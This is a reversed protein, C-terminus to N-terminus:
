QRRETREGREAPAPPASPRAPCLPEFPLSTSVWRQWEDERIDRGLKGCLLQDLAVPAPLRWVAGNAEVLVVSRGDPAARLAVIARARPLQPGIADFSQTTLFRLAPGLSQSERGAALWGGDPSIALSGLGGDHAPGGSRQTAGTAADHLRLPPNAGATVFARGDPTFALANLTGGWGPDHVRVRRGEGRLGIDIRDSRLGIALHLGDNSFALSQVAGEGGLLFGADAPPAFSGVLAGTRVDWARVSGDFFGAALTSGDPSFRLPRPSFPLPPAAAPVELPLERDRGIQWLWPAGAGTSAAVYRGDDSLAVASATDLGRWPDTVPQRGAVDWVHVRGNGDTAAVRGTSADIAAAALTAPIRFLRAGVYKAAARLDAVPWLRLSADFGISALRSGDASFALDMVDRTHAAHLPGVPEGSDADWLQISGDEAGTAFSRSDSTFAIAGIKEGGHADSFVPLRKGGQSEWRTVNGAYDAAVLLRGDPSFSLAGIPLGHGRLARRVPVQFGDSGTKWLAVSGHDMELAARTGTPSFEIRQIGRPTSRIAPGLTRGSATDYAAVIGREWDLVAIYAGSPHIRVHHLKLDEPVPLTIRQAAGDPVSLTLAHPAGSELLAVRGDPLTGLWTSARSESGTSVPREQGTALDWSQLRMGDLGWTFLRQGDAAFRVAAFGDSGPSDVVWSMRDFQVWADVLGSLVEPASSLRAAAVTQLLARVDGGPVVGRHMSAAQAVLRQATAQRLEERAQRANDTARLAQHVAAAALGALVLFTAGALARWRLNARMRGPLLMLRPVIGESPQGAQLASASDDLRIAADTDIWASCEARAAADDLAGDFAIPVVPRHPHLSRFTAVEERVWRPDRLTGATLLVVLMRSRALARRLTPTLPDGPLAQDESFFVALDRERLQRTLDSAYAQSGRPPMGLAFSVFIDYGFLRSAGASRASGGAAHAPRQPPSITAGASAEM